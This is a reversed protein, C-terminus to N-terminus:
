NRAPDGAIGTRKYVYYVNFKSGNPQIFTIGDDYAELSLRHRLAASGRGL